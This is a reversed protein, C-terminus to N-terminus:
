WVVDRSESDQIAAKLALATMASAIRWAMYLEEHLSELEALMTDRGEDTEIKFNHREFFGHSLRNRAQLASKLHALIDPSLQVHEVHELSALLRGLTSRDIEKLAVRAGEADPEAHWGNRVGTAFLLLTGLETELLQAAEAAIGFKAYLEDRTAM